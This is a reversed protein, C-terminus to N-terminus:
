ACLRSRLLGVTAEKISSEFLSIFAYPTTQVLVALKYTHERPDTMNQRGCVLM